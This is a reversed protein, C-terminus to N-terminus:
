AAKEKELGKLVLYVILNSFARNQEKAMVQLQKRLETPMSISTVQTKDNMPNM